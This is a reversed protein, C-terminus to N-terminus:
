GFRHMSPGWKVRSDIVMSKWRNTVCFYDLKTPRKSTDKALYTANCVRKRGKNGWVKRMPKFLTDVAFLQYDRMLDLMQVGHENDQRKTMCWKWTCEPVNRQLQCNFDGCLVVCDRKKVKKLLDRIRQITDEAMPKKTKGKHPVYTLVFFINCIPGALRVWAIRAGVSDCSLIKGEMRKSLMIAVGAAPDNEDAESCIWRKCQYSEKTQKNHMEGICLVDYGLSKCYEPRENSYSWPNWFRM